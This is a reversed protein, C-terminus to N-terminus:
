RPDMRGARNSAAAIASSWWREPPFRRETAVSDWLFRYSEPDTSFATWLPRKDGFAFPAEAPAGPRQPLPQGPHALFVLGPVRRYNDNVRIDVGGAGGALGNGTLFYYASGRMERFPSWIPRLAAAYLGAYLLPGGPLVIVSHSCFPPIVVTDGAHVHILYAEEIDRFDGGPRQLYLYGDGYLFTFIEPLATPGAVPHYHGSSKNFEPGITREQMLIFTYSLGASALLQRQEGPPFLDWKRYLVYEGEGSPDLFTDAYESLTRVTAAGLQFGGASEIVGDEVNIYLPYGAIQSIDKWTETQRSM